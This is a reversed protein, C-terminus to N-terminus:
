STCAYLLMDDIEKKDFGPLDFDHSNVSLLDRILPVRWQENDPMRFYKMKNKVINSDLEEIKVNCLKAIKFLNTGYVTKLNSKNLNSLIRLLPKNCNLLSDHFKIFRSSMIVKPHLCETLPEILYRHTLNSVKFIIRCSVNWAKYFRDCNNSFLDWCNSGFFSTCYINLLKLQVDSSAFYLEQTLSHVKGIFKGRKIDCDKDLSNDCSLNMGLHKCSEVYPLPTNNLMIHEVNQRDIKKQSFIICKTKSKKIDPNTNFKMGHSIVWKECINVM